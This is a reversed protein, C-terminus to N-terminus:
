SSFKVERSTFPSYRKPGTPPNVKACIRAKPEKFFPSGTGVSRSARSATRDDM